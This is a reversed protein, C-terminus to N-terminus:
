EQEIKEIEIETEEGGEEEDDYHSLYNLAEHLRMRATFIKEEIEKQFEKDNKDKERTAIASCADAINEVAWFVKMFIFVLDEDPHKQMKKSGVFRGEGGLTENHPTHPRVM